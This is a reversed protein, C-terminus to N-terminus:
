SRTSMWITRPQSQVMSSSVSDDIKTVRRKRPALEGLFQAQGPIPNSDGVFDNADVVSTRTPEDEAVAVVNRDDAGERIVIGEWLGAVPPPVSGRPDSALLELFSSVSATTATGDVTWALATTVDGPGYQFGFDPDLSEPLDTLDIDGEISYTQSGDAIQTQLEDFIDAAWGDYTANSLSEGDDIYVGGHAFGVRRTGDITLLRFDAEGPTGSVVLIDDFIGEVDEDLYSVVQIEGLATDVGDLELRTDLRATGDVFTSTAIWNVTGNPGAFTGRSEVLDDAILTAPQTITTTELSVIGAATTVYTQYAFIYNQNILIESTFVDQVTVGSGSFGAETFGIANGDGVTAEFHGVINEDVDNDILTGQNVEPGM